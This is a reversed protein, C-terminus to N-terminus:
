WKFLYVNNKIPLSFYGWLFIARTSLTIYDSVLGESLRGETVLICNGHDLMQSGPYWWSSSVLPLHYVSSHDKVRSIGVSINPDIKNNKCFQFAVAWFPKQGSVWQATLACSAIPRSIVLLCNSPPSGASFVQSQCSGICRQCCLCWLILVTTRWSHDM